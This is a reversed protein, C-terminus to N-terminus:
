MDEAREDEVERVEVEGIAPGLGLCRDHEAADLDPQRGILVDTDADLRVRDESRRLEGIAGFGAADRGVPGVGRRVKVVGGTLEDDLDAAHEAARLDVSSRAGTRYSNM